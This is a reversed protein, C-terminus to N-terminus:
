IPQADVLAKQELKQDISKLTNLIEKLTQVSQDGQQDSWALVPSGLSDVPPVSFSEAQGNKAVYEGRKLGMIVDRFRKPDQLGVLFAQSPDQTPDEGGAAAATQLRASNLVNEVCCCVSTGAPEQIMVDQVNSIPILKRIEGVDECDFRMGAKRKKRVVFVNERSVALWRNYSMDAMNQKLCCLEVCQCPLVFCGFIMAFSLWIEAERKEVWFQWTLEHDFEFNELVADEARWPCSLDVSLNIGRPGKRMLEQRPAAQPLHQQGIVQETLSRM